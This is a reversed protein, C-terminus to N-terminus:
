FCFFGLSKSNWFVALRLTGGGVKNLYLQCLVDYLQFSKVHKCQLIIVMILDTLM